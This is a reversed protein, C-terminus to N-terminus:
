PGLPLSFFGSGGGAARKTVEIEEAPSPAEEDAATSLDATTAAASAGDGTQAAADSMKLFDVLWTAKQTHGLCDEGPM